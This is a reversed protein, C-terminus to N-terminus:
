IMRRVQEPYEVILRLEDPTLMRKVDYSARQVLELTEDIEKIEIDYKKLVHKLASRGSFSGVGIRRGTESEVKSPIGLEDPGYLEYTDHSKLMGDAHIGSEHSHAKSGIGPQNPPIPIGTALSVYNCIKWSVKLNIKPDLINSKQLGSSYKLSLLVSVLDANGAREGLGNITTNIIADVGAHLAGLAGEISNAIAFGTDNHCHLEIPLKVKEALQKVRNYISFSRDFGLTDCYRIRDAGADKASLSFEELYSQDKWHRTRSADEANVGITKFGLEKAKKVAKVMQNIVDKENKRDGFKGKIMVDSTSISLNIHKLDRFKSAKEVDEYIARVWGSLKIPSLYGYEALELNSKIYNEELSVVPFAFESQDIGMENLYHNIMTREVYGIRTGYAQAGDRNTVDLIYVRPKDARFPGFKSNLVHPKPFDDM